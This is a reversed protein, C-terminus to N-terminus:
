NKQFIKKPKQYVFFWFKRPLGKAIATQKKTCLFGDITKIQSNQSLTANQLVKTNWKAVNRPRFFVLYPEHIHYGYFNEPVIDPLDEMVCSCDCLGYQMGFASILGVLKEQNEKSLLTYHNRNPQPRFQIFNGMDSLITTEMIFATEDTDDHRHDDSDIGFVFDDANEPAVYQEYETMDIAYKVGIYNEYATTPDLDEPPDSSENESSDDSSEGGSSENPPDSSNDEDAHSQSKWKGFFRIANHSHDDASTNYKIMTRYYILFWLDLHTLHVEDQKKIKANM